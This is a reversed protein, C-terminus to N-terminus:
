EELFAPHTNSGHIATHCATCKENVFGPNHFGPTTNAPHCQYCLNIQREHTLLHRNTSGHVTHCSSCSEVISIDHAYVFPGAKDVHCANCTQNGYGHRNRVSQTAHPEHCNECAPGSEPLPHSRPLDFEAVKNQHCKACLQVGTAESWNKSHPNHCDTCAIQALSHVSHRARFQREQKEHCSLCAVNADRPSLTGFRIIAATDGEGAVHAEGPGHCRECAQDSTWNSAIAHSTLAFDAVVQDHCVACTEGGVYGEDQAYASAAATLVLVLGGVLRCPQRFGHGM